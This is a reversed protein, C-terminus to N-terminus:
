RYCVRCKSFGCRKANKKSTRVVQSRRITRCSRKKHYRKGKGSTTIYVYKIKAQVTQVEMTPVATTALLLTIILLSLGKKVKKMFIGGM